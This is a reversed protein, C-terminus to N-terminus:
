LESSADEYKKLVRYFTRETTFGVMKYIEKKSYKGDKILELAKKIRFSNIYDLLSVGTEKKFVSSVYQSNMNFHIGISNVNLDTSTYNDAIYKKIHSLLFSIRNKSEHFENKTADCINIIYESLQSYINILNEGDKIKRYFIINDSFEMGSVPLDYSVKTITTAVDLVICVIHDLELDKQSTIENFIQSLISLATQQNGTKLANVMAQEKAFNFIFSKKSSYDKEIYQMPETIGLLRKYDLVKITQRYADSINFIGECITSLSYTLSLSFIRNIFDLGQYALTDIEDTGLAESMCIICSVMGDIETTHVSINKQSMLESIVNNIIFTLHNQREHTSMNADDSFLDNINEIYFTLVSFYDGNFSLGSNEFASYIVEGKLLKTINLNEIAKAQNDLTKTMQSNENLTTSISDLLKEYTNTGNETDLNFCSLMAKIPRYNNNLISKVVFYLVVIACILILLISAQVLFMNSDTTKDSAVTVISWIHGNMVIESSHIVSNSSKYGSIQSLTMPLPAEESHLSHSVLNGEKNYIYIDCLKDMHIKELGNYFYMKDSLVVGVCDNQTQSIPFFLSLADIKHTTESDYYMSNYSMSTCDTLLKKWEEYSMTDPTIYTEFYTSSSLFGGSFVITDKSKIYVFVEVTNEAFECYSRLDDVLSYTSDLFYLDTNSHLMARLNENENIRIYLNNMNRLTNNVDDTVTEFIYDNFEDSIKKAASTYITGIITIIFFMICIIIVYSFAWSAIINKKFNKLSFRM